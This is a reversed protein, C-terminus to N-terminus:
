VTSGLSLVALVRHREGALATPDVRDVPGGLQESEVGRRRYNIIVLHWKVVHPHVDTRTHIAAGLEITRSVVRPDACQIDPHDVKAAPVDLALTESVWSDSAYAASLDFVPSRRRLQLRRGAPDSRDVALTSENQPLVLGFRLHLRAQHRGLATQQESAVSVAIKQDEIRPVASQQVADVCSARDVVAQDAIRDATLLIDGGRHAPGGLVGTRHSPRQLYADVTEMVAAFRLHHRQVAQLKRRGRSLGRTLRQEPSNAGLAVQPGSLAPAGRRQEALALQGVGLEQLLKQRAHRRWHRM